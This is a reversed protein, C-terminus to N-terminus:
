TADTVMERFDVSESYYGNSTGFWRLIVVEDACAFRITTLTSSDDKFEKGIDVNDGSSEESTVEILPKGVIKAVDGSSDLLWVSECCDQDHDIRVRRGSAFTLLTENNGIDVHEVVEGVLSDPQITKWRAM